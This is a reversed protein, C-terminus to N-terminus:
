APFAAGVREYLDGTEEGLQTVALIIALVICLLIFGYEIAAAGAEDALEKAIKKYFRQMATIM